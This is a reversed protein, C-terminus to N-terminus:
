CFWEPHIERIHQFYTRSLPVQMDALIVESKARSVAIRDVKRPNVLWSRHVQLYWQDDFFYKISRLRLSIHKPEKRNTYYVATYGVDAKLGLIRDRKSSLEQLESLLVPNRALGKLAGRVIQIQGILLEFFELSKKEIPTDSQILVRVDNNEIVKICCDAALNPTNGTAVVQQEGQSISIRLPKATMGLFLECAMELMESTDRANFDVNALAALASFHASLETSDHVLENIAVPSADQPSSTPETPPSPLGLRHNVDSIENLPFSLCYAADAQRVLSINLQRASSYADKLLLFDTSDPESEGSEGKMLLALGGNPLCQLSIRVSNKNVRSPFAAICLKYLFQTLLQYDSNVSVEKDAIVEIGPHGAAELLLNIKLLLMTLAIPEITLARSSTRIETSEIIGSINRFLWSASSYVSSLDYGQPLHQISSRQFSSFHMLQIVAWDLFLLQDRTEEFTQRERIFAARRRRIFIFIGLSIVSIVMILKLSLLLEAENEDLYEQTILKVHDWPYIEGHVISLVSDRGAVDNHMERIGLGLLKKARAYNIKEEISERSEYSIFHGGHRHPNYLYTAKAEPDWYEVYGKDELLGQIHARRYIGTRSDGVEWSGLSMERAPQFLGNNVTGVGQWGSGFPTIGIIIKQPPIGGQLLHSVIADVSFQSSPAYLPAMHQTTKDWSGHLYAAHLNIFDVSKALSGVPWSIEFSQPYTLTTTLLADPAERDLVARIAQMLLLYNQPDADSFTGPVDAYRAPFPWDIDIGDFEYQQMFAVASQAIRQRGEETAALRSFHKERGWGGITILIRLTPQRARLRKLLSFSGAYEDGDDSFEPYLSQLDAWLDGPVVTGSQDVDASQYFLHTLREVPVHTLHYNPSYVSWQQYYGAIYQPSNEASAISPSGCLVAILGTFVLKLVWTYGNHKIKKNM